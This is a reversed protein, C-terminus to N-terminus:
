ATLSGILCTPATTPPDVTPHVWDVTVLRAFGLGPPLRASRPDVASARAVVRLDDDDCLQCDKVLHM